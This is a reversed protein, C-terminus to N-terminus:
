QKDIGKKVKSKKLKFDPDLLKTKDDNISLPTIEGKYESHEKVYHWNKLNWAREKHGCIHCQM